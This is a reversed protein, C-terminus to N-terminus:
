VGATVWVGATVEVGASVGIVWVSATVGVGTTVWM